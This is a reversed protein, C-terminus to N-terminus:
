SFASAFGRDLLALGVDRIQGISSHAYPAKWSEFRSAMSYYVLSVSARPGGFWLSSHRECM